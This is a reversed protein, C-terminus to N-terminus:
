KPVYGRFHRSGSASEQTRVAREADTEQLRELYDGHM